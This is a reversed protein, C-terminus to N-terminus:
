GSRHRSPNVESSERDDQVPQGGQCGGGCQSCAGCGSPRTLAASLRTAQRANILGASQARGALRRGAGRRWPQPLWRWLAYLAAILVILFVLLHQLM